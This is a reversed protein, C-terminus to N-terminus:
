RHAQFVEASGDKKVLVVDYPDRRGGMEMGPSGIPMGPTALGLGDPREDLLRKVDAAPVHGEVFYGGVRATHCSAHQPAIGLSIKLAELADQDMETVEVKFGANRMHEVWGGCCGCTPSKAVRLVDKEDAGSTSAFVASAMFGLVARRTLETFAM